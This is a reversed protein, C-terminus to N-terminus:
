QEEEYIPQIAGSAFQDEVPTFNKGALEDKLNLVTDQLMKIQKDRAYINELYIKKNAEVEEAHEKELEDFRKNYALRQKEASKTHDSKEKRIEMRDKFTVFKYWTIAVVLLLAVITLCVILAISFATWNM